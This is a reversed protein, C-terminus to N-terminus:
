ITNQNSHLAAGPSVVDPVVPPVPPAEGVKLHPIGLSLKGELGILNEMEASSQNALALSFLFSAEVCIDLDSECWIWDFGKDMCIGIHLGIM